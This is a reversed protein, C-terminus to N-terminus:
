DDTRIGPNQTALQLQIESVISLAITEPSDAAINLGVPGRLRCAFEDDSLDLDALLRQKRATPGLVGVYDHTHSALKGLYIRDTDLHHSMVVVASFSALDVRDGLRDAEILYTEDASALAESKIYHPRHDAVAVHWGLERAFRVLPAADPGGGLLLLRPWPRISWHLVTCGGKAAYTRIAPMSQPPAPWESAPGSESWSNGSYIFCDGAAIDTLDSEIVLACATTFNAAMANSISDFPHWNSDSDLKQLLIQMMGNCGLGIGWLEDASDRMDYNILRTAGDGIVQLAQESLDGELCGGSILGACEGNARILIQRGSKSYTSGETNVVTALVLANDTHQWRKFQDILSRNSM